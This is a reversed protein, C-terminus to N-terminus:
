LIRYLTAFDRGGDSRHGDRLHVEYDVGYGVFAISGDCYAMNVGTSHASGFRTHGPIGDGPEQFDPIPTSAPSQKLVVRELVGAFRHLDTSYGSYMSENDGLSEGTTYEAAEIYKEGLLYTKSAGDGLKPFSSAARLHSIGNFKSTSPTTRWYAESDGESFDVPGGHGFAFSVGANIAYDSRAAEVVNGFPKPSMAYAYKDSVPWPSCMRRTPCAAIPLAMRLRFSYAENAADGVQHRGIEYV